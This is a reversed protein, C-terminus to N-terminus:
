SLGKHTERNCIRAVTSIALGESSAIATCTEGKLRRQRISLVVNPLNSLKEARKPFIRIYRLYDQSKTKKVVSYPLVGIIFKEMSLYDHIWLNHKEQCRPHNKSYNDTSHIYCNVNNRELFSKIRHLIDKGISGSQSLNIRFNSKGLPGGIYGEGDFFGAIYAWNM